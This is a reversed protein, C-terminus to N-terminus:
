IYTYVYICIRIYHICMTYMMDMIRMIHMIYMIYICLTYLICSKLRVLVRHKNGFLLNEINLYRSFFTMTEDPIRELESM